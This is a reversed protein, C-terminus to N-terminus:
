DERQGPWNITRVTTTNPNNYYGCKDCVKAGAPTEHWKRSGTGCRPCKKPTM